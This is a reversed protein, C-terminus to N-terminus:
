GFRDLITQFFDFLSGFGFPPKKTMTMLCLVISLLPLLRYLAISLTYAAVLGDALLSPCIVSDGIDGRESAHLYFFSM